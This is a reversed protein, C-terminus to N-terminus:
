SFLVPHGAKVWLGGITGGINGSGIIGIKLKGDTAAQAMARLPWLAAGLVLVGGAGILARRSRDIGDRHSRSPIQLFRPM